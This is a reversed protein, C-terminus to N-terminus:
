DGASDCAGTTFVSGDDVDGSPAATGVERRVSGIYLPDGVALGKTNVVRLSSAGALVDASITTREKVIFEQFSELQVTFAM